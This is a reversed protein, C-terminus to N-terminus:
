CVWRVRGEHVGEALQSTSLSRPLGMIRSNPDNIGGFSGGHVGRKHVFESTSRRRNHRWSLVVLRACMPRCPAQM